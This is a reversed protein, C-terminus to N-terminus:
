LLLIKKMLYGMVMMMLIEPMRSVMGM